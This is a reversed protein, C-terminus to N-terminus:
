KVYVHEPPQGHVHRDLVMAYAAELEGTYRGIDFVQATRNRLLKSRIANLRVPDAALQAALAEYQGTTTTILEPLDLSMLLSAAVRGAFAEGLRTVIPLGAWIADVTTSHANYPFTDLFLHAHSLRARHDALSSLRTGFVLRERAVGRSAAERKLAAAADPNTQALWLVSDPVLKLIRMWGAFTDPLLKGVHNFCCFVFANEPLGLQSKSYPNVDPPSVSDGPLYCRPLYIVKEAYLSHQSEPLVTRDAIVYDIFAAGMTGPYGLYNIQIPAARMAFIKTRAYETLGGLDVAVDIELQRALSAVELDSRNTVDTFRDFARELRQRLGDHAPPGFAFAMIEFRRRDHREFLEATLQAVPHHRFDASFYGIRIKDRKFRIIPGLAQRTTCESQIWIDAARRQLSPSDVLALMCFPTCVPEGNELSTALRQVDGHFDTWDCLQMQLYRREGRVFKLRPNLSLARDFSDIAAELRKLRQLSIGRGQFAEAFNPQLAIAQDFSQIADENRGIEQLSKGRNLYAAVLNPRLAIAKDFNEIAEACQWVEHLVNGRNVFAEAYDPKLRVAQDFSALAELPRDLRQLVTGRNFHTLFDDPNIELAADFSQVAEERRDLRELVSGRNCYAFAYGPALEIARDYDALAPALRSLATLAVARKYYAEARNSCRDLYQDYIGIAAEFDGSQSSRTASALLAQWEEDDHRDLKRPM